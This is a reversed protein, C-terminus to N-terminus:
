PSVCFICSSHCLAQNIFSLYFFILVCAWVLSLLIKWSTSYPADNGGIKTNANTGNLFPTWILYSKVFFIHLGLSEGAVGARVELNQNVLTAM